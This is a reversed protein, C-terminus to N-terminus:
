GGEVETSRTLPSPAKSDLWPRSLVAWGQRNGARVEQPPGQRQGAGRPEPVRLVIRDAAM